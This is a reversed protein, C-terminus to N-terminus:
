KVEENHCSCLCCIKKTFEFDFHKILDQPAHTCQNHLADQCYSTIKSTPAFGKYIYTKGTIPDKIGQTM